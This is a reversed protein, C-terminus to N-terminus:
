AAIEGSAWGVAVAVDTGEPGALAVAFAASVGGASVGDSGASVRGQGKRLQFPM